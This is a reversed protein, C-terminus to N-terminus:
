LEPHHHKPKPNNAHSGNGTCTVISIPRKKKKLDQEKNQLKLSPHTKQTALVSQSAPSQSDGATAKEHCLCCFVNRSAQLSERCSIYPM